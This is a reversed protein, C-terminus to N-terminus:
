ARRAKEAVQDRLYVPQAQEAPVSVGKQYAAEALTAVYAAKPLLDGDYGNLAPGLRAALDKGYVGWGSGVGFWDSESPVEIREPKGVQEDGLLRAYGDDDRVYCGWYVEHMRADIAALISAGGKEEIAEQTLAALTSIPVVPLDHAFAIGQAVGAAIRVGTFSGPGRGFAIADLNELKEGAEKMLSECMPLILETHRRPAVEFRSYVKGEVLLAASCAETATEIALLRM